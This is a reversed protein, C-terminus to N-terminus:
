FDYAFFFATVVDDRRVIVGVHSLRRVVDERRADFDAQAHFALLQCFCQLFQFRFQIDFGIFEFIDDLHATGVQLIGNGNREALFHAGISRSDGAAAFANGPGEFADVDDVHATRGDARAEVGFRSVDFGDGRFKGHQGTIDEDRGAVEDIHGIVRIDKGFYRAIHFSRSEHEDLHGVVEAEHSGTRAAAEVFQLQRGTLGTRGDHRAFDIRDHSFDEVLRAVLDDALGHMMLVPPIETEKKVYNMCTVANSLEPYEYVNKKGILMGEPSDPEGQNLTTPFDEKIQVCTVGYFDVIANVKCSYEGYVDTDMLEQDATVGAIFATNGGSSDGMIFVQSPDIRYEEAHKRLFRVGTKADEVPAPFTALDSERYQLIATVFGRRALDAMAGLRKYNDQKRWASGQVYLIAPYIKPAKANTEPVIMQLTREIGDRNVYCVDHKYIGYRETGDATLKQVEEMGEIQTRFDEFSMNKIEESTM